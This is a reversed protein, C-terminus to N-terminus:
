LIIEKLVDFAKESGSNNLQGINQSNFAFFLYYNSDEGYDIYSSLLGEKKEKDYAKIGKAYEDAYYYTPITEIKENLYNEKINASYKITVSPNNEVYDIPLIFFDVSRRLSSFIYNLNKTKANVYRFEIKKLGEPKKENLYQKLNNNVGNSVIIFNIKEDAKPETKVSTVVCFSTVVLAISVLYIYWKSFMKRLM